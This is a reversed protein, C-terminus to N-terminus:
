KKPHRWWFEEPYYDAAIATYIGTDRFEYDRYMSRHPEDLVDVRIIM